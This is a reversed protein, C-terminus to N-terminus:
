GKSKASRAPFGSVEIGRRPEETRPGRDFLDFLLLGTLFGGLHAEWAIGGATLHGAFALAVVLNVVVWAAIATLSARDRVM